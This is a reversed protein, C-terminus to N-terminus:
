ITTVHSGPDTHRVLGHTLQHELTRRADWDAQTLRAARAPQPWDNLALVRTGRLLPSPTLALECLTTGPNLYMSRGHVTPCGTWGSGPKHFRPSVALRDLDPRHGSAEALRDPDIHALWTLRARTANVSVLRGITQGHRWTVPVPLETGTFAGPEVQIRLGDWFNNEGVPLTLLARIM